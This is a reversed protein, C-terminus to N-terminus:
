YEATRVRPNLKVASPTARLMTRIRVFSDPPMPRLRISVAQVVNVVRGMYLRGETQRQGTLKNM